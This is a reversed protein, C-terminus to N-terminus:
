EANKQWHSDTTEHMTTHMFQVMDGLLTNFGRFPKAINAIMKVHGYEPYELVKVPGNKARIAKALNRTNRPWVTDDKLGVMLLTPQNDGTVFHIPQSQWQSEEPGFITKLRDSNLPLFDYPGALGIFGKFANPALDVASLYTTNLNLMMAIHAGASHGVIFINEPDGGYNAINDKVWRAALAPDQMFGPFKVAPFVRYDPIVTVFGQSSFAACVFFYDKKDGSDWSGGYFFIVVPLLPKSDQPKPQYIDLSQRTLKGYAINSTVSLHRTPISLNLLNVPSCATLLTAFLLSFYRAFRVRM